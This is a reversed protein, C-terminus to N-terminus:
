EGKLSDLEKRWGNEIDQLRERFYSIDGPRDFEIVVERPATDGTQDKIILAPASWSYRAEIYYIGVTVKVKRKEKTV